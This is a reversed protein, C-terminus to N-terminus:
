DLTIDVIKHDVFGVKKAENAIKRAFEVEKAHRQGYVFTLAYVKYRQHLLYYLLTSSDIGGSLILVAKM